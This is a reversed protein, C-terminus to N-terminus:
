AKCFTPWTSRQVWKSSLDHISLICQCTCFVVRSRSVFTSLNRQSLVADNGLLDPWAWWVEAVTMLEMAAQAAPAAAMSTAVLGALALPKM